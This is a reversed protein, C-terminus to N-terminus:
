RALLTLVSLSKDSSPFVVLSFSRRIPILLGRVHIIRLGLAASCVTWARLQDSSMWCELNQKRQEKNKQSTTLLSFPVPSLM